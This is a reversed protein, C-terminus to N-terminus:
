IKANIKKIFLHYIAVFISLEIIGITSFVLEIFSKFFIDIIYILILILIIIILIKILILFLSKLFNLILKEKRFDSTSKLKFLNFIKQYIKINFKIYNTFKYYIIFEYVIISLCILLFHNIM